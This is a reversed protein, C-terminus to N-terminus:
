GKSCTEYSGQPRFDQRITVVSLLLIQSGSIVEQPVLALRQPAKTCLRGKSSGQSRSFIVLLPTM